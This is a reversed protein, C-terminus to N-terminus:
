EDEYHEDTLSLPMEGSKALIEIEGEVKSLYDDCEQLLKQAEYFLKMNEELSVDQTELTQLIEEIRAMADEYRISEM